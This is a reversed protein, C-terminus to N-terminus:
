TAPHDLYCTVLSVSPPTCETGAHIEVGAHPGRHATPRPRDRPNFGPPSWVNGDRESIFFAPLNVHIEGSYYALYTFSVLEVTNRTISRTCVVTNVVGRLRPPDTVPSNCDGASQQSISSCTLLWLFWVRARARARVCVCVCV